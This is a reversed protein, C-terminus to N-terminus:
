SITEATPRRMGRTKTLFPRGTARREMRPVAGIPTAGIPGVGGPPPGAQIEGVPRSRAEARPGRGQLFAWAQGGGQAPRVNPDLAVVEGAETQAAVLDTLELVQEAVSDSLGGARDDGGPGHLTVVGPERRGGAPPEAQFDNQNQAAGLRGGRGLAVEKEVAEEPGLDDANGVVLVFRDVPGHVLHSAAQLPLTAV